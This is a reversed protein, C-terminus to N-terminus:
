IRHAYNYNKDGNRIYESHIAKKIWQGYIHLSSAFSNCDCYGLLSIGRVEPSIGGLMLLYRGVNPKLYKSKNREQKTQHGTLNFM